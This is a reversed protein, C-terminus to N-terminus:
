EGYITQTGQWHVLLLILDIVAVVAIGMSYDPRDEGLLMMIPYYLTQILIVSSLVATRATERGMNKKIRNERSFSYDRMNEELFKIREKMFLSDCSSHITVIEVPILMSSENEDFDVAPKSDITSSSLSLDLSKLYLKIESKDLLVREESEGSVLPTLTFDIIDGTMALAASAAVILFILKNRM